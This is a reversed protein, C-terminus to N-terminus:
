NNLDKLKQRTTIQKPDILIEIVAAKNSNLSRKLATLFNRHHKIKEYHANYSKSMLKFDPNVLDTAIKRNPYNKEQHM